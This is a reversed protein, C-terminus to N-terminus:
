YGFDFFNKVTLVAWLALGCLSPFTASWAIRFSGASFFRLFIEGAGGEPGSCIVLCLKGLV